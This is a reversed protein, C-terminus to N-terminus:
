SPMGFRRAAGQARDTGLHRGTLFGAHRAVETDTRFRFAQNLGNKAHESISSKARRTARGPLAALCRGPRDAVRPSQPLPAGLGAKVGMAALPPRPGVWANM